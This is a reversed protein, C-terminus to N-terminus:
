GIELIAQLLQKGQTKNLFGAVTGRAAVGGVRRGLGSARDDVGIQLVPAVHQNTEDAAHGAGLLRQLLRGGDEMDHGSKVILGARDKGALDAVGEAQPRLIHITGKISSNMMRLAEQSSLIM